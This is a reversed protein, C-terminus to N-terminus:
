NLKIPVPVTKTKGDNQDTEINNNYKCSVACKLIEFCKSVPVVALTRFPFESAVGGNRPKERFRDDTAGDLVKVILEFDLACQHSVDVVDLFEGDNMAPEVFRIQDRSGKEEECGCGPVVFGDFSGPFVSTACGADM